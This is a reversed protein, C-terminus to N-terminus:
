LLWTRKALMMEGIISVIYVSSAKQDGGRDVAVELKPFLLVLADLKDLVKARM